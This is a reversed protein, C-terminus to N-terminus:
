GQVKAEIWLGAIGTPPSFASQQISLAAEVIVECESGRALAIM